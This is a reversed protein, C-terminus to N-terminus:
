KCTASGRSRTPCLLHTSVTSEVPHLPWRPHWGIVPPHPFHSARWPCNSMTSRSHPAAPRFTGLRTVDITAVNQFPGLPDPVTPTPGSTPIGTRQFFPCLSLFSHNPLIQPKPPEAPRKKWHPKITFVEDALAAAQELTAPNREGM